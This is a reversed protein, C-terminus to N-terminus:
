GAHAVADSSPRAMLSTVFNSWAELAKRREEFYDHRNYVAAVGRITGSIHNLARDIMYPAIGLGAM